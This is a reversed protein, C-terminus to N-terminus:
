AFLRVRGEAVETLWGSYDDDFGEAVRAGAVVRIWDDLVAADVGLADVSARRVATMFEVIPSDVWQGWIVLTRALDAVPPGSAVTLWDIVVWGEPGVLVNNPHFDFHCVGRRGDDLRALRAALDQRLAPALAGQTLETGLRDVLDPFGGVVTSNITVQLASFQEATAQAAAVTGDLLEHFLSTGEVRDLVLGCRDDITVTGHARAVPLGAAGLATLVESEFVSVGSWEPRDLKVVRGEDYVYVEAMRGQALLEV